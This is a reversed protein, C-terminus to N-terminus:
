NWPRFYRPRPYIRCNMYENIRINETARHCSIASRDRGAFKLRGSPPSVQEHITEEIPHKQSARETSRLWQRPAQKIRRAATMHLRRDAIRCALANPRGPLFNGHNNRGFSISGPQLAPLSLVTWGALM